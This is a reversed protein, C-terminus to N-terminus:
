GRLLKMAEEVSITKAALQDLIARRDLKHEEAPPTYGLASVIDDLRSRATNYAIKQENAVSNINGRNKILIEVFELQETTLQGIWGLSFQGEIVIGSDPSELRTVILPKGTVPCHTLLPNM